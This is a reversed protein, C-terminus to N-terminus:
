INRNSIGATESPLPNEPYDITKSPTKSPCVRSPTNEQHPCLHFVLASKHLFMESFCDCSSPHEVLALVHFLIHSSPNKGLPICSNTQRVNYLQPGNALVGCLSICWFDKPPTSCNRVAEM